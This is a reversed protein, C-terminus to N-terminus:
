KFNAEFYDDFSETAKEKDKPEQETFMDGFPDKEYKNHLGANEEKAKALDEKSKNLEDVVAKYKAEFSEMYQKLEEKSVFDDISRADENGTNQEDVVEVAPSPEDVQDAKQQPAPDVEVSDNGKENSKQVEKQPETEKEEKPQEVVKNPEEVKPNNQPEKDELDTDEEKQADLWEQKEEPTLSGLLKELKRLTKINMQTVTRRDKTYLM